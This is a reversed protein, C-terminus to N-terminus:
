GTGARRHGAGGGCATGATERNRGPLHKRRRLHVHRRSPGRFFLFGGRRPADRRRDPVLRGADEVRHSAAPESVWADAGAHAARSRGARGVTRGGARVARGRVSIGAVVAAATPWRPASRVGGAGGRHDWLREQNSREPLRRASARAVRRDAAGLRDYHRAGFAFRAARRARARAGDVRVHHSNGVIGHVPLMGGHRSLPACRLAAAPDRDHAQGAGGHHQVAREHPLAAGRRHDDGAARKGAVARSLPRDGM